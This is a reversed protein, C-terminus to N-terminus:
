LAVKDGGVVENFLNTAEDLGIRKRMERELAQELGKLVLFFHAIARGAIGPLIGSLPDVDFLDQRDRHVKLLNSPMMSM